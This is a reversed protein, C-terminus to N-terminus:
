WDILAKHFVKYFRTTKVFTYNTQVALIQGTYHISPNWIKGWISIPLKEIRQGWGQGCLSRIYHICANSLRNSLTCLRKLTHTCNTKVLIKSFVKEFQILFERFQWTLNKLSNIYYIALIISNRHIYICMQIM